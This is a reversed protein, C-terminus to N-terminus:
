CNIDLMWKKNFNNKKKLDPDLLEYGNGTNKRLKKLINENFKLMELIFGM